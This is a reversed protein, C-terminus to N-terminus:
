KTKQAKRPQPKPEVFDYCHHDGVCAITIMPLKEAAGEALGIPSRFSLSITHTAVVVRVRVQYVNALAEFCMEDGYHYPDLMATRWGDWGDYGLAHLVEDDEGRYKDWVWQVCAARIGKHDVRQGVRALQISACRFVCAGDGVVHRGQVLGLETECYQVLADHAVGVDYRPQRLDSGSSKSSSSSLSASDQGEIEVQAQVSEADGDEADGAEMEGEETVQLQQEDGDADRAQRARKRLAGVEQLKNTKWAKYVTTWAMEAQRRARGKSTRADLTVVDAVRSFVLVAEDVTLREKPIGADNPWVDRGKAESDLMCMLQKLDSFRKRMNPTPMDDPALMRFPPYGLSINGSTWLVFANQVSVTTPLEFDAPVLHFKGGWCYLQQQPPPPNSAAPPSDQIAPGRLARALRADFEELQDRLASEFADMTLHGQSVAFSNLGRNLTEEFTGRFERIETALARQEERLQAIELHTMVGRPIGTAKMPGDDTPLECVVLERLHQLHPGCFLPTQLLPHDKPLLSVLWSSHHVVSALAQRLIPLLPTAEENHIVPFCAALVEAIIKGDVSTTERFMPPLMAFKESLPPLGAVTRGVFQDGAREFQFYSKEVNRM